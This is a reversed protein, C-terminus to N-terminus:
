DLNSDLSVNIWILTFASIWITIWILQDVEWHPNSWTWLQILGNNFKFKTPLRAALTFVTIQDLLLIADYIM